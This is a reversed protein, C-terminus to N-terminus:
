GRGRVIREGEKRDEVQHVQHVLYLLCWFHLDLGPLGVPYGSRVRNLVIKLINKEGM